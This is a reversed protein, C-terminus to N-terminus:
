QSELLVRFDLGRFIWIAMSVIAVLELPNSGGYTGDGLSVMLGISSCFGAGGVGLYTLRNFGLTSLMVIGLIQGM